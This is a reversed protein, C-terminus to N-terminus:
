CKMERRISQSPLNRNSRETIRKYFSYSRFPASTKSTKLILYQSYCHRLLMWLVCIQPILVLFRIFESQNNLILLVKFRREPSLHSFVYIKYYLSFTESCFKTHYNQFVIKKVYALANSFNICWVLHSVFQM